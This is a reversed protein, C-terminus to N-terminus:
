GGVKAGHTEGDTKWLIVWTDGTTELTPTSGGGTEWTITFWTITNATGDDIGLAIMQGDVLASTPTSAATLAWKQINGNAPDISPTTGTVTFNTDKTEKFTQEATFSNAIATGAAGDLKIEDAALFAGIRADEVKVAAVIEARTINKLTGGPGQSTDNVDLIVFKDGTATNAGTIATLDSTKTDAM